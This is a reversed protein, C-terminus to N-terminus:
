GLSSTDLKIHIVGEGGPAVEHPMRTALLPPTMSAKMIRLPASGENKVVFDHEVVAGASVEGFDFHTEALVAKPGDNQANSSPAPSPLQSALCLFALFIM